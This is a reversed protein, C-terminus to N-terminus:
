VLRIRGTLLNHMMGQKIQRTKALKADLAAIEADMGSLIAAIASQESKATPLRVEYAALQGKSIELFTSGSCLSRFGEKQMLLLYYLFEIDVTSSPVFNKFGQNTAVPVQNIACEGITARSTMTVSGVPILEASSAKLGQQSITRSTEYLYKFGDLRTIDTPTCWQVSGDWFQPQTTSPTGGGRIDALEGLRKVEWEESFGPLRKRGTLLEQMAGQKILRKKAIIQELSEILADADSLAEAIAEQEAKTPPIPVLVSGLDAQGVNARIAGQGRAVIQRRVAAARLGYGAFDPNLGDKQSRGLIVFGGFIVPDDDCYVSALGIEDQTESTRNFLIDGRRVRFTEMHESTLKVRGPINSAHLHSTTIIELVNIFPTGSGYASKKANFGNRFTLIRRLSHVEWDGPIVGVETQQYGAMMDM